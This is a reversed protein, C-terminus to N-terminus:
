QSQMNLLSVRTNILRNFLFELKEEVVRISSNMDTLQHQLDDIQMGNDCKSTRNAALKCLALDFEEFELKEKHDQGPFNRSHKLETVFFWGSPRSHGKTGAISSLLAEILDFTVSEAELMTIVAITAENKNLALITHKHKFNSINKRSKRIMKQANKRSTLFGCVDGADRKRRLVSLLELVDQKAHFLIDKATACADVLRLYGDLAEGGM